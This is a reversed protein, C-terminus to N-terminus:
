WLFITCERRTMIKAAKQVDATPSITPPDWEM